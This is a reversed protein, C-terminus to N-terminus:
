TLIIVLYGVPIVVPGQFEVVVPLFHAQGTM